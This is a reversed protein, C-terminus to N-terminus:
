AEFYRHDQTVTLNMLLKKILACAVKLWEKVELGL